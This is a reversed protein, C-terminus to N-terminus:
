RRSLSHMLVEFAINNNPVSLFPDIQPTREMYYRIIHNNVKLRVFLTLPMMLLCVLPVLWLSLLPCGLVRRTAM